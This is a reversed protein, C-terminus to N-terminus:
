PLAGARRMTKLADWSLVVDVRAANRSSAPPSIEKQAIWSATLDLPLPISGTTFVRDGAGYVDGNFTAFSQDVNAYGLLM